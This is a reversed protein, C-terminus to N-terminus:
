DGLESAFKFLLMGMFLFVVANQQKLWKIEKISMYKNWELM